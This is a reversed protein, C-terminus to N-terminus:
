NFWFATYIIICLCLYPLSQFHNINFNSFINFQDCLKWILNKSVKFVVELFIMKGKFFKILASTTLASHYGHGGLGAWNLQNNFRSHNIFTSCTTWGRKLCMDQQTENKFRVEDCM